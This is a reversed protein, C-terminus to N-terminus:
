CKVTTHFIHGHSSRSRSRNPAYFNSRIGINKLIKRDSGRDKLFPIRDKESGIGIRDQDESGPVASSKAEWHGPVRSSGSLIHPSHAMHPLPASNGCAEARRRGSKEEDTNITSM